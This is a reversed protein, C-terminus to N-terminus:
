APLNYPLQLHSYFLKLLNSRRWNIKMWANTIGYFYIDSYVYNIAIDEVVGIFICEWLLSILKFIIRNYTNFNLYIILYLNILIKLLNEIQIQDILLINIKLNLQFWIMLIIFWMNLNLILWWMNLCLLRLLTRTQLLLIHISNKRM